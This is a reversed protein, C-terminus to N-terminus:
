IVPLDLTREMEEIERCIDQHWDTDNLIYTMLSLEKLWDLKLVLTANQKICHTLDAWELPTLERKKSLMHLEALRRHIPHIGISM